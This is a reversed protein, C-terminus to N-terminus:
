LSSTFGQSELEQEFRTWLRNLGGFIRLSGGIEVLVEPTTEISVTPSFQIASVAIRELASREAATDQRLVGLDRALASAAVIAMGPRVGRSRAAANCMVVTAPDASAVALPGPRSAGRAFIELPLSPFRLALWLM